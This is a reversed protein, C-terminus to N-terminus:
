ATGNRVQNLMVDCVGETAVIESTVTHRSLLRFGRGRGRGRGRSSEVAFGILPAYAVNMEFVCARLDEGIVLEM